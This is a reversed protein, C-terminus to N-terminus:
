TSIKSVFLATICTEKGVQVTTALKLLLTLIPGYATKNICGLIVDIPLQPTRGFNSRYPMFGNTEHLSTQYTFLVKPLFSDWDQQQKTVKSM